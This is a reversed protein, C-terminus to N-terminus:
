RIAGSRHVSGADSRRDPDHLQPIWFREIAEIVLQAEDDLGLATVITVVDTAPLCDRAHIAFNLTIGGPRDLGLNVYRDVGCDGVCVIHM